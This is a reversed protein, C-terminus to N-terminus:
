MNNYEIRTIHPDMCNVPRLLAPSLGITHNLVHRPEVYQIYLYMMRAMMYLCACGTTASHDM